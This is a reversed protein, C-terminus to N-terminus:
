RILGWITGDAIEDATYQSSAVSWLWTMRDPYALNDIDEISTRGVPAAASSPDVIVPIGWVLAELAAVSGHTILCYADHLERWLPVSSRKSRVSVPRGTKQAALLTREVWGEIRHFKEYHESPAAIIIRKGNRCWPKVALALRRLREESALPHLGSMQYTNVHWRFYEPGRSRKLWTKGGRNLYGRDWYVFTRGTRRWEEEIERLEMQCGVVPVMDPPLDALEKVSNSVLDFGRAISNILGKKDERLDAQVYLVTNHRGISLL